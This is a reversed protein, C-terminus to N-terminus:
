ICKLDLVTYFPIIYRELISSRTVRHHESSLSLKRVKVTQGPSPIAGDGEKIVKYQMGSDTTIFGTLTDEEAMSPQVILGNSIVAVAGAATVSAIERVFSRRGNSSELATTSIPESSKMMSLSFADTTMAIFAVATLVRMIM